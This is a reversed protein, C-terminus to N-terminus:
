AFDCLQSGDNFFPFIKNKKETEDFDSSFCQSLLDKSAFSFSLQYSSNM